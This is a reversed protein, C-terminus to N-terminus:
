RKEGVFVADAAEDVVDVRASQALNGSVSWAAPFDALLGDVPEDCGVLGTEVM